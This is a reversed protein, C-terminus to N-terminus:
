HQHGGHVGHNDPADSPPPVERDRSSIDEPEVTKLEPELAESVTLFRGAPAGPHAPHGQPVFYGDAMRKCGGAAGLLLILFVLNRYAL